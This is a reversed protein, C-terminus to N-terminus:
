HDADDLYEQIKEPDNHGLLSALQQAEAHAGGQGSDKITQEISSTTIQWPPVMDPGSSRRPQEQPAEEPM